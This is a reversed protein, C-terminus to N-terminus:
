AASCPGWDPEQEFPLPEGAKKIKRTKPDVFIPFFMGKRDKRQSGVGRRILPSGYMKLQPCRRVQIQLFFIM